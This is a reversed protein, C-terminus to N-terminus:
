CWWGPPDTRPAHGTLGAQQLILRPQTALRDTTSAGAPASGGGRSMSISGAAVSSWRGPDGAETGDAGAEDWEACQELTAARLATVVDPDAPDYVASILERDVLRTARDLMRAAGDVQHGLYDTLETVTAYAM